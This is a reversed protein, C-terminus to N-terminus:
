YGKPASKIQMKNQVRVQRLLTDIFGMVILMLASLAVGFKLHTDSIEEIKM